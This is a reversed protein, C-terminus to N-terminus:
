FKKKATFVDVESKEMGELLKDMKNGAAEIAATLDAARKLWSKTLENVADTNADVTKKDEEERKIQERTASM